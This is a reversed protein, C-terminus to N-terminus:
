PSQGKLVALSISDAMAKYGAPNPHVHDGSDYLDRLRSPRVPDRMLADFDFIGDFVKTTRIWKNVDQRVTEGDADFSNTGEFPTVTGGFVRIGHEHARVAIQQLGAVIEEASVREAAFPNEKLAPIKLEAIRIRPFGIDNIGALLILTTVGPQALVDRDFRALASVGAGDHLVRNGGIGENVVAIAPVASEASLRRALQYPWDTYSEEPKSSTGQTISDGFAVITTTPRTTWVELGSLFYWAAKHSSESLDSKATLDGPGALYSGHQAQFHWSSVPTNSPLYISISVESFAKVQLDVPDSLMPAGAPIGVNAQGGFTLVRDTEPKIRSGEDTLAIHAARVVLASNGFENSLRVRVRRGGVTPRIVMRITKDAIPPEPPVGPLHVPELVSSGWASVWHGDSTATQAATPISAAFGILVIFLVLAAPKKMLFEKVIHPHGL